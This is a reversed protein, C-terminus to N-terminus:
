LDVVAVRKTDQDYVFKFRYCSIEDGTDRYQYVEKSKGDRIRNDCSNLVKQPFNESDFYCPFLDYLCDQFVYYKDDRLLIFDAVTYFSSVSGGTFQIAKVYSLAEPSLILLSSFAKKLSDPLLSLPAFSSHLQPLNKADEEYKTKLMTKSDDELPLSALCALTEELSRGSAFYPKSDFLCVPHDEKLVVSATFGNNTYDADLILSNSQEILNETAKEEDFFCLPHYGENLSLKAVEKNGFYLGNNVQIHKAQFVPLLFYVAHFILCLCLLAVYLVRKHQRSKFRKLILQEITDQGQLTSNEESPQIEIDM